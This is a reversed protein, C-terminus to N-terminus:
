MKGLFFKLFIFVLVLLAGLLGGVVQIMLMAKSEKRTFKNIIETLKDDKPNLFDQKNKIIAVIVYIM